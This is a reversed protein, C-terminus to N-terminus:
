AAPTAATPTAPPFGPSGVGMRVGTAPPGGAGTIVNVITNAADRVTVTTEPADDIISQGDDSVRPHGDITITGIFTGSADTHL